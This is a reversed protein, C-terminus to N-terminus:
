KREVLVRRISARSIFTWNGRVDSELTGKLALQLVKQRHLGLLRAAEPLSAWEETATAPSEENKRATPM